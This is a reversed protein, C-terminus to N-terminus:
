VINFSYLLIVVHQWFLSHFKGIVEDPIGMVNSIFNTCLVRADPEDWGNDCVSGFTGNYCVEVRGSIVASSGDPSLSLNDSFNALRFEGDSLCQSIVLNTCLLM